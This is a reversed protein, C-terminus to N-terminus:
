EAITLDQNKEVEMRVFIEMERLGSAADELEGQVMTMSEDYSPATAIGKILELVCVDPWVGGHLAM